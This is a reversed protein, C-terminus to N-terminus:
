TRRSSYLATSSEQPRGINRLPIIPSNISQHLMSSM